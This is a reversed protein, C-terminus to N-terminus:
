WLYAGVTGNARVMHEPWAAHTHQKLSCVVVLSLNIKEFVNLPGLGPGLNEDFEPVELEM